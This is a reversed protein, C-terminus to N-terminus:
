PGNSGPAATKVRFRWQLGTDQALVSIVTYGRAHGDAHIVNAMGAHRAYVPKLAAPALDMLERVLDHAAILPTGLRADAANPNGNYPDFTFGRYKEGTPGNATDAFLPTQSPDEIATEHMPMAFGEVGTSDYATATTYGISGLGREAWNSPFKRAPSTPCSFANPNQIFPLVKMTWIRKPDDPPTGYDASPPFIDQHEDVYLMIGVSLQRANSLCSIQQAKGKSQALAPLLLSSLLATIAIVVLLELLSFASAASPAKGNKDHMTGGEARVVRARPVPISDAVKSRMSGTQAPILRSRKRRTLIPQLFLYMGTLWLLLLVVGSPLFVGLKISPHFWSGDHLAEIIDSRRFAVQLVEATQTDLQIEWHNKTSIKLIGKSPRLDVRSIDAWTKVGAQPTAQCIELVRSFSLTPEKGLGSQEQPQIWVVEKKVQLLLGTAIIILVPLAVVIALWYHLKRNLIQLKM